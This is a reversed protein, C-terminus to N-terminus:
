HAKPPEISLRVRRSTHFATVALLLVQLCPRRTAATRPSGHCPFGTDSEDVSVFDSPSECLRLRPLQWSALLRFPVPSASAQGITVPVIVCEGRVGQWCGVALLRCPTRAPPPVKTYVRRSNCPTLLPWVHAPTSLSLIRCRTRDNAPGLRFQHLSCSVVLRAALCIQKRLRSHTYPPHLRAPTTIFSPSPPTLSHLAPSQPDPRVL